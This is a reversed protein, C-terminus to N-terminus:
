GLGGRALVAGIANGVFCLQFIVLGVVIGIGLSAEILLLAVAIATIVGLRLVSRSGVARRVAKATVESGVDTRAVQRDIARVNLFALGIGLAIGVAGLPSGLALAVAVGGAGALGATVTIRRLIPRLAVPDLSAFLNM